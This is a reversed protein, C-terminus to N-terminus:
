SLNGGGERVTCRVLMGREEQRSITLKGGIMGARYNMIGLGFGRPVSSRNVLTPEFGSGNDSVELVIDGSLRLLSIRIQNARGHRLANHVAEQAIRYLHTATTNNAVAVPVPCDFRCTVNQLADTGAALEALASRLGEVEIQVPLIGHSLQQVHKNAEVLGQSLRRATDRLRLLETESFNRTTEGDSSTQTDKDLLEVLTGAFLALGTLEQGTGDHLEQGIRRQEDAAIKLIQKLLEKRESIDRIIGTFLGLHDVQSVGLDVPFTSGDKRLGVVERGVGIIRAEGTQLYRSLYADHEERFPSPMILSINKGLLEEQSYGFMRLAAPNVSAVIGQQDISIIADAATNLIARIREESERLAQQTKLLQTVDESITAIGAPHGADDTLLSVTMVIPLVSGDKLLRSTPVSRVEDGGICRAILSDQRSHEDPPVVVKFSEGLLEERKWASEQEAARNLDV